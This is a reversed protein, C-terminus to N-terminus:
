PYVGQFGDANNADCDSGVCCSKVDGVATVAWIYHANPYCSFSGDHCNDNATDACSEPVKLLLGPGEPGTYSMVLRCIDIIDCEVGAITITEGTVPIVQLNRVMYDGISIQISDKDGAYARENATDVRGGVNVGEGCAVGSVLLIGLFLAVAVRARKV